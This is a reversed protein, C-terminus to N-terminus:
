NNEDEDFEGDTEDDINDDLDDPMVNNVNLISGMYTQVENENLAMMVSPYIRIESNDDKIDGTIKIINHRKFVKLLLEIQIPSNVIKPPFYATLIDTLEKRTIAIKIIANEIFREIYIKWFVALMTKEDNSLTLSNPDRVISVLAPDRILSCYGENEKVAVAYGMVNLYDNIDIDNNRIFDYTSKDEDKVIFTEGLLKNIARKFNEEKIGSYESFDLNRMM